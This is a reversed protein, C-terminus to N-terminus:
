RDLRSRTTADDAPGVDKADRTRRASALIGPIADELPLEVVSVTWAIEDLDHRSQFFM